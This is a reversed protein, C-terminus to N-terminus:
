ASNELIYLGWSALSTVTIGALMTYWITSLRKVSFIWIVLATWVAFASVISVAISAFKDGPVLFTLMVGTTNTLVFAPIVAAFVRSAVHWRGVLKTASAM